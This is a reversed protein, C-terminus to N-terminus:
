SQLEQNTVAVSLWRGLRTPGAVVSVAQKLDDTDEGDVDFMDTIPVLEDAMVVFGGNIAIIDYVPKAIPLPIIM